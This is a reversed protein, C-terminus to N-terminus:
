PQKWVLIYILIRTMDIDTMPRVAWESLRNEAYEESDISRRM